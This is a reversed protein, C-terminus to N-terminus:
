LSSIFARKKKRLGSWGFPVVHVNVFGGATLTSAMRRRGVENLSHIVIATDAIAEHLKNNVMWNTVFLGNQEDENQDFSGEIEADLDHDLMILDYEGAKEKLKDICSIADYVFDVVCGISTQKFKEHRQNNDDLFLIRM